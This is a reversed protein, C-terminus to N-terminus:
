FPPWDQRPELLQPWEIVHQGLDCISVHPVAGCGMLLLIPRAGEARDGKPGEM